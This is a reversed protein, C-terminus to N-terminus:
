CLALLNFLTTQDTKKQPPLYFYVIVYLYDNKLNHNLVLLKFYLEYCRTSVQVNVM